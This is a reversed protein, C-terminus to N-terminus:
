VEQHCQLWKKVKAVDSKTIYKNALLLKAFREYETIDRDFIFDGSDMRNIINHFAKKPLRKNELLAVIVMTDTDNSLYLFLNESIDQQALCYRITCEKDKALLMRTEESAHPNRAIADLIDWEGNWGESNQFYLALQHLVKEEETFEAVGELFGAECKNIDFELTVRWKM